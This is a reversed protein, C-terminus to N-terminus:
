DGFIKLIQGDQEDGSKSQESEPLNDPKDGLVDQIYLTQVLVMVVALIPTALILGVAGILIALALQFVITLVPPLEVTKREIMPTILNSEVLQVGVFLILVYLASTPSDIFALLIAPIASLIPGFNPVFSLLGAILGLTLALPVGIFYLGIWTLIGIALMSAGKGILWWSLTEGIEYLIERARKRHPPPFLKTFGKTYTKPESALYVALLLMLAINTLAGITTSFIGGVRSLMASNNFKEIVEDTSPMQEIILRGWSYNSLFASVNQASRPLEDRLNRVQEAVSPALLYVSLALIALLLFSVLLVSYGESLRLHRRSINALGHLFIALLIAGFTLLVVDFVNILLLVSLIIFTIVGCITLLRKIFKNTKEGEIMYFGYYHVLLLALSFDRV